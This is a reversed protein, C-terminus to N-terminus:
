SWRGTCALAVAMKEERYHYTKSFTMSSAHQVRSPTGYPPRTLYPKEHQSYHSQHAMILHIYKPHQKHQFVSLDISVGPWSQLWQNSCVLYPLNFITWWQSHSHCHHLSLFPTSMVVQSSWSDLIQVKTSIKHVHQYSFGPHKNVSSHCAVLLCGWTKIGIKNEFHGGKKIHTFSIKKWEHCVTSTFCNRTRLRKSFYKVARNYVHNITVKIM